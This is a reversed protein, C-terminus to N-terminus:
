SKGSLATRDAVRGYRDIFYEVGEGLRACTVVLWLDPSRAPRAHCDTRAMGGEEVYIAAVKEIVQSETSLATKRGMSLGLFTVAAVLALLPVFIMWRRM